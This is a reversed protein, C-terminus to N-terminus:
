LNAIKLKLEMPPLIKRSHDKQYYDLPTNLNWRLGAILNMVYQCNIKVRHCVEPPKRKFNVSYFSQSIAKLISLLWYSPSSSYEATVFALGIWMDATVLWNPAGNFETCGVLFALLASDITVIIFLTTIVRASQVTVASDDITFTGM